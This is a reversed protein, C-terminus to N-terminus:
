NIRVNKSYRVNVPHTCGSIRNNMIRVNEAGQVSIGIQANEGEIINNEIIINKHIGSVTDDPAKVNVAIGCANNNAGDGRGCRIIRNNRITVNDSGPGESWDGEAGIHIATGTGERFTCNEVLVDRTKILVGRALHSGTYSNLFELRPLRTIDILYYDDIDCPLPGNLKVKSKWAKPFTDVQVVTLTDVAELTNKKVVEVKNGADPFDLM